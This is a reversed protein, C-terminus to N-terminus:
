VMIETEGRLAWRLSMSFMRGNKVTPKRYMNTSGLTVAATLRYRIAAMARMKCVITYATHTTGCGALASAKKVHKPIVSYMLM